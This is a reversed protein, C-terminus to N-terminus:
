RITGPISNHRVQPYQITVPASNYRSPLRIVYGSYYQITTWHQDITGPLWLHYNAHQQKTSPFRIDYGSHQQITGLLSIDYGSYGPRFITTDCGTVM